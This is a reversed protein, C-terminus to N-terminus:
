REAREAAAHAAENMLAGMKRIVDPTGILAVRSTVEPGTSLALSFEFLVVPMHVGLAGTEGELTAARVALCDAVAHDDLGSFRGKILEAVDDPTVEFALDHSPTGLCRAWDDLTHDGTRRACSLCPANLGNVTM